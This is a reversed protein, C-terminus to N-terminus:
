LEEFIRGFGQIQAKIGLARVAQWYTCANIALVPKGLQVELHACLRVMSLNTGVQVLADVDPGDLERMHGELAEETVEAIAIPTPCRLGKFRVVLFVM